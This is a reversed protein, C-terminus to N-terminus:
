IHYSSCFSILKVFSLLFTVLSSHLLTERGDVLGEAEGEM